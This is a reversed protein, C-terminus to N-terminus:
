QLPLPLPLQLPLVAFNLLPLDAVAVAVAVAVVVAVAVANRVDMGSITAKMRRNIPPPWNRPRWIKPEFDSAISELNVDGSSAPGQRSAFM